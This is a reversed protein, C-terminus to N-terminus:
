LNHRARNFGSMFRFSDVVIKSIGACEVGISANERSTMLVFFRLNHERATQEIRTM